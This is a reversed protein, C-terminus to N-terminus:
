WLMTYLDWLLTNINWPMDDYCVIAYCSMLFSICSTYYWKKSLKLLINQHISIIVFYKVFINIWCTLLLIMFNNFPIIIIIAFSIIIHSIVEVGILANFCYLGNQHKKEFNVQHMFVSRVFYNKGVGSICPSEVHEAGLLLSFFISKKLVSMLM